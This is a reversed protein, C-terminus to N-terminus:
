KALTLRLERKGSGGWITQATCVYYDDVGPHTLVHCRAEMLKDGSGVVQLDLSIDRQKSQDWTWYVLQVDWQRARFPPLDAAAIRVHEGNTPHIEPAAWTVRAGGSAFPMDLEFRADTRNNMTIVLSRDHSVHNM